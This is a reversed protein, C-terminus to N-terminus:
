ILKFEIPIQIEISGNTKPFSKSAEEIAQITANQLFEHGELITINEVTGNENIKFKVIVIGEISLKKARKPYHINENILNRIELLHKNLYDKKEDVKAIQIDKQITQEKVVENKIPKIPTDELKKNVEITKEIQKKEVKQKIEKKIIPKKIEAIKEEIIPKEKEIIKEEQIEKKVIEEEVIDNVEPKLEIYKLSITQSLKPEEVIEIKNNSYFYYISFGFLVYFSLTILFSNIYRKM